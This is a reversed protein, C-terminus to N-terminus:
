SGCFNQSLKLAGCKKRAYARNPASGLNGRGLNLETSGTQEQDVESQILVAADGRSQQVAKMQQSAVRRSRRVLRHSLGVGNRRNRHSGVNRHEPRRQCSFAPSSKVAAAFSSAYM